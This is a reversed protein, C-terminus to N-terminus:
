TTALGAARRLNFVTALRFADALANPKTSSDFTIADPIGVTPM